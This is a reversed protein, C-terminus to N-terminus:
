RRVMTFSFNVNCTINLICGGQPSIVVRTTVTGSVNNDNGSGDGDYTVSVRCGAGAGSDITDVVTGGLTMEDGDVTGNLVQGDSDTLTFQNGSQQIVVDFVDPAQPGLGCDDSVYNLVLSWNGTLNLDDNGGDDDGGCSVSALALLM